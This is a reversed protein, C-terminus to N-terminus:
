YFNLKSLCIDRVCKRKERRKWRKDIEINFQIEPFCYDDSGHIYSYLTCDKVQESWRVRAQRVYPMINRLMLNMYSFVIHAALNGLKLTYPWFVM